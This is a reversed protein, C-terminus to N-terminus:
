TIIKGGAKEIKEKASKSFSKITIEYKKNISGKGLLKTYGLKTLDVKGEKFNLDGVNIIKSFELVKQPRRFGKKGFYANGFEKLIGIKKHKARKGAGAMGRGGRGGAGRHTKKSGWGCTKSGRNKRHKRVKKAM